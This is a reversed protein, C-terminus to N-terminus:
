VKAYREQQTLRVELAYFVLVRRVKRTAKARDQKHDGDCRSDQVAELYGDRGVLYIRHLVV